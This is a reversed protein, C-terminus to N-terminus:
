KINSEINEYLLEKIELNQLYQLGKNIILLYETQDIDKNNKLYYLVLITVIINEKNEGVDLKEVYKKIKKYITTYSDILLQTQFNISWNGDIINQTLTMEKADFVKKTEKGSHDNNEDEKDSESDNSIKRNKKSSKRYKKKEEEDSESDNLIKKFEKVEDKDSENDDSIKKCKKSSKKYKKKEEENNEGDNLNKDFKKSFKKRKKKEEVDCKKSRNKCKKKEEEDSENDNLNKNCKKVEEEDSESDNSIKKCKKSFKKCKKDDKEDSESDNSIKKCKKMCKKKKYRKGSDNDSDSEINKNKKCKRKKKPRIRLFDNDSDSESEVIEKLKKQEIIIMENQTSKENEVEAYLSTYKSLVQYRKSLEINKEQPLDTNNLINGIIIKSIIDGDNESINNNDFNIEKKILEKKDYYEINININNNLKNKIIFYYNLFEDQYYIKQKPFYHYETDINKVDIKFDFLYNRLAKNLTQIVSSKIKDMDKIFNYSGNKGSEVIFKKDFNNGIGFSHVRFDDLNNKIVKLSKERDWVEGDTLIFLNKCLNLNDFNENSFINELPKYLKTGGLNAELKKVKKITEEINEATYELPIESSIYKMKSGFGILQYYSNKPLSQLFFLLSEKVINIPKGSMSGSQDILFIFLSPYSNILNKQYIEIYKKENDLDPLDGKPINIDNRNYIMSLICSTEDKKPDYQTILNYDNMRETRFLIKFNNKNNNELEMKEEKESDNSSDSDSDKKRKEKIKKQRIKNQRDKESLSYEILCQTYDENFKQSINKTLGETILRLIKSHTKINIKVKINRLKENSNGNNNKIDIIPFDTITSYCFSMDESILFQIFETTLKVLSKPEINGISVVIYNDEKSSIAGTKGSAISDNYKEKAKEKDLVKSIVKKGNIDLTFKSFQISPNYPLKLILEVPNNYNNLYYQTINTKSYFENLEADINVLNEDIKELTEKYIQENLEQETRKVLIYTMDSNKRTIYFLNPNLLPLMAKSKQLDENTKIEMPNLYHILPSNKVLNYTELDPIILVIKHKYFEDKTLGSEQLIKELFEKFSLEVTNLVFTDM